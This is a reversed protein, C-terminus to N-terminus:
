PKEGQTERVSRRVTEAFASDIRRSVAEEVAHFFAGHIHDTTDKRVIGASGKGYSETSYLTKGRPDRLILAITCSADVQDDQWWRTRLTQDCRIVRGSLVADLGMESSLEAVKKPAIGSPASLILGNMGIRQIAALSAEEFFVRPPPLSRLRPAVWDPHERTDTFRLIGVAPASPHLKGIKSPFPDLRGSRHVCGPAALLVAALILWQATRSTM